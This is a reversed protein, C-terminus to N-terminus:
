AKKEPGGGGQDGAATTAAATAAARSYRRLTIASVCRQAGALLLAFALLALLSKPYLFAWPRDKKLIKLLNGAPEFGPQYRLARELSVVAGEVDGMDLLSSGKTFHLM